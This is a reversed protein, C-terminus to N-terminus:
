QAIGKQILFRHFNDSFGERIFTDAHQAAKAAEKFKKAEMFAKIKLIDKEDGFLWKKDKYEEPEEKLLLEDAQHREDAYEQLDKLGAELTVTHNIEERHDIAANLAERFNASRIQSKGDKGKKSWYRGWGDGFTFKSKVGDKTFTREGHRQFEIPNVDDWIKFQGCWNELYDILEKDTRNSM